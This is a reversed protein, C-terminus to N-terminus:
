MKNEILTVATESMETRRDDIAGDIAVIMETEDIADIAMEAAVDIMILVIEGAVVGETMKIKRRVAVL